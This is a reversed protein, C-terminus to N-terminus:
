SVALVAVACLEPVATIVANSHNACAHVVAVAHM